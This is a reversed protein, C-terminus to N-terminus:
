RRYREMINDKLGKAELILRIVEMAAGSGGPLRTRFDACEDLEIVADAVAAGIASRKMIPMDVVDDGLYLVTAPDIKERAIFEEWVALKDMAGLLQFEVQSERAFQTTAADDRGSLIGTHLGARRALKLWHSDHINFFKIVEGTAPAYAIRGDTLTGDADFFIYEIKKLEAASIM